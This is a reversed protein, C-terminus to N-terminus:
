KWFPQFTGGLVRIWTGPRPLLAYSGDPCAHVGGKFHLGQPPLSRKYRTVEGTLRMRTTPRTPFYSPTLTEPQEWRCHPSIDIHVSSVHSRCLASGLYGWLVGLSKASCCHRLVSVDIRCWWIIPWNQLAVFNIYHSNKAHHPYKAICFLSMWMVFASVCNKSYLIHYPQHPAKTTQLIPHTM